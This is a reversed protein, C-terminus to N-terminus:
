RLRFVVPVEVVDSVARGGRTAPHFRWQRVARIAAGDLSDVGSSEVIHLSEVTGSAAVVVRLVVRGQHGALRAARPYAPAPNSLASDRWEATTPPASPVAAEQVAARVDAGPVTASIAAGAPAAIM